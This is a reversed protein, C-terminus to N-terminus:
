GAEGPTSGAAATADALAARGPEEGAASTVGEVDWSDFRYVVASQWRVPARGLSARAGASVWFLESGDRRCAVQTTGNSDRSAGLELVTPSDGTARLLFAGPVTEKQQKVDSHQHRCNFPPPQNQLLSLGQCM